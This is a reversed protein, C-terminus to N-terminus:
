REPVNSRPSTGSLGQACEGAEDLGIDLCAASHTLAGVSILDVGTAAVAAVTELTIGGSAELAIKQNRCRAVARELDCNSFNDLLLSDAGAELAEDLQELSDIEAAIRVMHGAGRRARGIAEGVGGALAVHNDKILVADDLGFRHRAGGGALVAEIEVARLGPTTKRTHVIQAGSGAVAEVYRRTLSAVGSLRGLFNLATREATLISGAPGDIEAIVSGPTLSEGDSLKWIVRIEPDIRAFAEDAVDVGALVGAQRAVLGFRGRASAPVTLGSTIDGREGLDEALAREVLAVILRRPPKVTM